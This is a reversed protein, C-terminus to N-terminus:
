RSPGSSRTPVPLPLEPRAAHQPDPARTAAVPTPEREAARERSRALVFDSIKQADAPPAASRGRTKELAAVWGRCLRSRPEPRPRGGRARRDDNRQDGRPARGERLGAIRVRRRDRPHAHRPEDAGSPGHQAGARPARDPLLPQGLPVAGARAPRDRRQEALLVGPRRGCPPRSGRQGGAGERRAPPGELAPETTPTPRAPLGDAQEANFVTYQRVVPARM